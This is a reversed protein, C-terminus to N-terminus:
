AKLNWDVICQKLDALTGIGYATDFVVSSRSRLDVNYNLLLHYVIFEIELDECEFSDGSLKFFASIHQIIHKNMRCFNHISM